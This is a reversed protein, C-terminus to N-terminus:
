LAYLLPVAQGDVAAEGGDETVVALLLLMLVIMYNM